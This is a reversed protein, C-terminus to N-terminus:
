ATEWWRKVHKMWLSSLYLLEFNLAKQRFNEFKLIIVDSDTVDTSIKSIQKAHPILTEQAVMKCCKVTIHRNIVSISYM